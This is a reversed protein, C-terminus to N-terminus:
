TPAPLDAFPDAGLAVAGWRVVAAAASSASGISLLLALDGPALRGRSAALHLNAPLLVPGVNALWPYTTLTRAPDFELLAAVYRHFWATPTNVVILRVDGLAVGARALAARAVTRVHDDQRAALVRGASADARLVIPPAGAPALDFRFAGCTDGTHRAAHGLLGDGAPVEGVVLAAAGDGLFWGLTDGPDACRSYTCGAVVLVRRHAGAQVLACATQFAVLSGSCASELNFAAARPLGLHACLFTADGVGLQAPLFTAAIVLDVDSPALRACALAERAAALTHAQSSEGPALHRRQATGRFPDSLYPRMAASWPGPPDDPEGSWLRAMTRRAATAAVDPARARIDDNTVVREPYRVSLSLIGASRHM